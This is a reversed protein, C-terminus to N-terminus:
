PIETPLSTPTRRQPVSPLEVAALVDLSAADIIQIKTDGYAGAFLSPGDPDVWLWEVPQDLPFVDVIEGSDPDIVTLLALDEGFVYLLGRRPDPVLGTAGPVSELEAVVEEKELDFRYIAGDLSSVFYLSNSGPDAAAFRIFRPLERIQEIRGGTAASLVDLRRAFWNLVYIRSGDQSLVPPLTESGYRVRRLIRHNHNDVLYLSQTVWYSDDIAFVLDIAGTQGVYYVRSPRRGSFGKLSNVVALISRLAHPPQTSGLDGELSIRIEAPLVFRYEIGPDLVTQLPIGRLRLSAVNDLLLGSARDLLAYMLLGGGISDPHPILLRQSPFPALDVQFGYSGSQPITLAAQRHQYDLLRVELEAPGPRVGTFIALGALDTTSAAVLRGFSDSLQVQAGPLGRGRRADNIQIQLETEYGVIGFDARVPAPTSDQTLSEAEVTAVTTASTLLLSPVVLDIEFAGTRSAVVSLLRVRRGGTADSDPIDLYIAVEERPAWNSGSVAVTSGPPGSAPRLRLEAGSAAVATSQGGIATGYFGLGVITLVPVLILLGLATSILLLPRLKM